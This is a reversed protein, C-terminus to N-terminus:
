VIFMAPQLIVFNADFNAQVLTATALYNLAAM